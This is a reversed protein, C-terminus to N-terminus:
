SERMSVVMDGLLSFTDAATIVIPEYGDAPQHASAPCRRCDAM